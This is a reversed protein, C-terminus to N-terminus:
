RSHWKLLDVRLQHIRCALENVVARDPEESQAIEAVDHFFGPINSKLIMLEVVIGSRDSILGDERIVSRFVAKWADTELFCHENNLLAETM